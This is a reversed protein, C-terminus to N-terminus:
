CICAIVLVLKELYWYMLSKLWSIWCSPSTTGGTKGVFGWIRSWSLIPIDWLESPDAEMKKDGFVHNNWSVPDNLIQVMDFESFM